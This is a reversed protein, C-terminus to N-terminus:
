GSVEYKINALRLWTEVKLCYASVSPIVPTRSFQYLYVVDKEFNPKHVVPKPPAPPSAPQAATPTAANANQSEAADAATGTAAPAADAAAEKNDSKETKQDEKVEKNAEAAVNASEESPM